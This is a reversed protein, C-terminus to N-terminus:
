RISTWVIQRKHPACDCTHDISSGLQVQLISSPSIIGEVSPLAVRNNPMTSMASVHYHPIPTHTHHRITHPTTDNRTPKAPNANARHLGSPLCIRVDLSNWTRTANANVHWVKYTRTRHRNRGVSATPCHFAPWPGRCTSGVRKRMMHLWAIQNQKTVAWSRTELLQYRIKRESGWTRLYLHLKTIKNWHQGVESRSRNTTTLCYRHLFHCGGFAYNVFPYEAKCNNNM